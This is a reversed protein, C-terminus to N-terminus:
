RGSGAQRQEDHFPAAYRSTFDLVLGDEERDFGTDFNLAYSQSDYQFRKKQKKNIGFGSIKRIFTKWKPGALVETVEKVKNLKEVWWTERHEGKQQLLYKSENDNSQRQKFGLLRLCGCGCGSDAEENYDDNMDEGEENEKLPKGHLSAM